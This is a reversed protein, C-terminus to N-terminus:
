LLWSFVATGGPQAIVSAQACDSNLFGDQVSLEGAQPAPEVGRVRDALRDGRSGAAIRIMMMPIMMMPDRCVRATLGFRDCRKEGIEVGAVEDPHRDRTFLEIQM